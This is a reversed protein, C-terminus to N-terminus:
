EDWYNAKNHGSRAACNRGALREQLVKVAALHRSAAEVDILRRGCLFVVSKQVPKELPQFKDTWSDLEMHQVHHYSM